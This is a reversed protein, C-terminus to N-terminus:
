PAAPVAVPAATAARGRRGTSSGSRARAARSDPAPPILLSFAQASTGFPPTTVTVAVNPLTGTGINRVTVLLHVTEALHQTAPFAASVLVPYATASAAPTPIARGASSGGGACGAVALM